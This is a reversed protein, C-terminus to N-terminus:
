VVEGGPRPPMAKGHQCVPGNEFDPPCACPLVATSTRGEMGLEKAVEDRAGTRRSKSDKHIRYCWLAREYTGVKYRKEFRRSFEAGEFHELHEMYKVENIEKRSFLACGPHHAENRVIIGKERLPDASHSQIVQGREDVECYGSFLGAYNHEAVSVMEELAGNLLYDDSDIRIVWRGRAMGIAHNSSWPLGRNRENRVLKLVSAKEDDLKARYSQLWEWSGDTSCDDVVIYEMDISQGIVSKVCQPLFKAQNFSCTYASVIPQRNVTRLYRNEPRRMFEIIDLATFPAKLVAHIARLVVLDEPYDMTLRLKHRYPEPPTYVNVNMGEAKMYYSTFEIDERRSAAIEALKSVRMVEATCADPANWCYTYDADKEIHDAVILRILEPDPLIDDATVRVVHELGGSAEALRHLPSADHGRFVTVADERAVSELIDNEKSAPIALTVPYEGRLLHDLLIDIARKGNIDALVKNPLRSSRIRACVVVGVKAM